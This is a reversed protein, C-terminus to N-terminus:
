NAQILKNLKWAFRATYKKNCKRKDIKCCKRNDIKQEVHCVGLLEAVTDSYLYSSSYVHAVYIASTVSSMTQVEENARDLSEL